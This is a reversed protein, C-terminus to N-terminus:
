VNETKEIKRKLENPLTESWPLCADLIDHNDLDINPLTEFLFNLYLFPNLGNIKATEIISYCIGSATAGKPSKAFLFNKRGLVFPKIGREALNNDCSLRGDQLFVILTDWQNLSYKIAEGLKSKPLTKKSEAELWLRYEELIPKVEQIRKAYREESTLEKYSGELKYITTFFKLAENAKSRSLESDAPLAKLADTYYRRAHALCGLRTVSSVKNYGAYGDTQLFGTFKELFREPHKNARSKQYDYLLIRRKSREGTAYLWMYNNKNDKEDLCNLVTEDAHIVEEQTLYDHLRNFLPTLWKETGKIVWSAMNQRSIDIGYDVFSQEQRYLAMMKNYKMDMITALLSPSVMSGPLVPNPMPAVVISGGSGENEYSDCHRCAYVQRKHLVVKASPPIIKLEKRVIVKMEHLANDCKSCIQEHAPLTYIIEEEELDSYSKRSKCTGKKRKYTIEELDPEVNEKASEKEAENFFSMQGDSLKESSSGFKQAQSLKFQEEYFKVKAKLEENEQILQEIKYETENPTENAKPSTIEVNKMHKNYWKQVYLFLM